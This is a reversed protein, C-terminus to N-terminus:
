GRVILDVRETPLSPHSPTGAVFLKCCGGFWFRPDQFFTANPKDRTIRRWGRFRARAQRSATVSDVFEMPSHHRM